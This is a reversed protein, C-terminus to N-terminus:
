LTQLDTVLTCALTESATTNYQSSMTVPMVSNGDDESGMPQAQEPPGWLDFTLSSYLGTGIRPGLQQLRICVATQALYWTYFDEADANDELELGLKWSLYSVRHADMGLSNGHPVCPKAGGIIELTAKRLIGTLQSGGAGAWTTDAYIKLLNPNVPTHTPVTLGSTKTTTAVYDGFADLETTMKGDEGFTWDFKVSRGMVYGIEVCRLADGIELTVSDMTDATAPTLGPTFVCSYDNQGTTQQGGSVGGKLTLALPLHLGQFYSIDMKIPIANAGTYIVSSDGTEVRVGLNLPFKQAKPREPITATGLFLTDAAVHQGHNTEKGFQVYRDYVPSM